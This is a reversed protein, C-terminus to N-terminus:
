GAFVEDPFLKLKKLSALAESLLNEPQWWDPEHDSLNAKYKARVKKDTIKQFAAEVGIQRSALLFFEFNYDEDPAPYYAVNIKSFPNNIKLLDSVALKVRGHKPPTLTAEIRTVQRDLRKGKVIWLQLTKDYVKIREDSKVAGIYQTETSFSEVGDTDSSLVWHSSARQRNSFVAIDNPHIHDVDTTLDLRTINGDLLLAKYNHGAFAKLLRHIENPGVSGIIINPNFEIRAFNISRKIPSFEFLAIHQGKCDLYKYRYKYVGKTSQIRSLHCRNDIKQELDELCSLIHNIDPSPLDFTISLKDIFAKSIEPTKSKNFCLFDNDPAVTSKNIGAVSQPHPTVSKAKVTNTTNSRQQRISTSRRASTTDEDNHLRSSNDSKRAEHVGQNSDVNRVIHKSVVNRATSILARNKATRGSPKLYVNKGVLNRQREIPIQRSTQGNNRFTSSKETVTRM